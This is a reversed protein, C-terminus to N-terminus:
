AAGFGKQPITAVAARANKIFSKRTYWITEARAFLGEGRGERARERGRRPEHDGEEVEENARDNTETEREAGSARSSKKLDNESKAWQKESAGVTALIVYNKNTTVVAVNHVGADAFPTLLEYSYYAKGDVRVTEAKVVEEPEVAVSATIAPSIADLIGNIEGVDEISPNEKAILLKTTPIIIISFSGSGPDVFQVETTAEDCRPQCYNGSKANSM